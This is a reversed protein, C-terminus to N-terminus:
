EGAPGPDRFLGISATFGHVFNRGGVPGFEGGCFFGAVPVDGIIERLVGIDHGPKDWMQMGRGNCGFLLAGHTDAHAHPALRMRLDHDASDADRVHFRVTTGVRAPGAIAMAGTERDAGIIAHILFDAEAGDRRYEDILRGVLLAERALEEEAATLKSLVKQLQALPAKGGLEHIVNRDGRTVVFPPGIPRCAQSVVTDVAIRGTLAVGVIGDNHIEGNLILQNQGPKGAASAIGGLLPAGPYADSLSEVLGGIDLRFPDGVALFIPDNEPSAGVIREWDLPTNIAELQPQTIRFPRVAVDPLTAALLSMSPKDEIEKDQGITGVATCGFWVANPLGAALREVVEDMADEFHATAFFLALDVMGPTVRDAISEILAAVAADADAECTISSSFRM